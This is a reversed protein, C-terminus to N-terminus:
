LHFENITKSLIIRDAVSINDIPIASFKNKYLYYWQFMLNFSDRKLPGSKSLIIEHYKGSNRM